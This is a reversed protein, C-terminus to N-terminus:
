AERAGRLIDIARILEEGHYDLELFAAARSHQAIVSASSGAWRYRPMPNVWVIRRSESALRNLLALSGEIRSADVSGRAAGADSVVLVPVGPMEALFDDLMMAEALEPLRYVLEDVVDAFYFLRVGRLRSLDLAEALASLFPRWPAM